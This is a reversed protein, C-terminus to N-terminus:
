EKARIDKVIRRLERLEAKEDAERDEQQSELIVTLKVVNVNLTALTQVLADTTMRDSTPQLALMAGASHVARSSEDTERKILARRGASQSLAAVVGMTIMFAVVAILQQWPEAGETGPIIM